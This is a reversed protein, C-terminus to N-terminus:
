EGTPTEGPIGAAGLRAERWASPTARKAERFGRSFTNISAYGVSLAITLIPTSRLAPDSLQRCAERIRYDHLLARFNRYGLQEHILRRLRYEPVGVRLALENLSLGEREYIREEELLTTLRALAPDLGAQVAPRKRVTASAVPLDLYRAIDGDSVRFLVFAVVALDTATLVEHAIYNAYSDPDILVQTLLGTAIILGGAAALTLLRIARRTEVLDFRFDALTWYLAFGAFVAQLLAPATQTAFRVYVWTSPILARGPEDLALQVALVVLLWRPFRGRETFLDFCLLMFAGPALNRAFDLFAAWGGTDIRFAGPMWYGYEQHALVVGCAMSFAILAILRAAKSNPQSALLRVCLLMACVITAVDIALLIFPLSLPSEREQQTRPM